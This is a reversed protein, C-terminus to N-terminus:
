VGAEELVQMVMEHTTNPDDNFFVVNDILMPHFKRIAARIKDYIPIEIEPGYVKQVAGSLCWCVATPDDTFVPSGNKDQAAPFQTWSKPDSLLEKVTM